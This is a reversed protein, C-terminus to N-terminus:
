LTSDVLVLFILMRRRRNRSASMNIDITQRFRLTIQINMCAKNSLEGAFVISQLRFNIVIMLIKLLDKILFLSNFIIRCMKFFRNKSPVFNNDVIM